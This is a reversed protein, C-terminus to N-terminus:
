FFNGPLCDCFYEQENKPYCIGNNLCNSYLCPNPVLQCHDGFYEKPCVCVYGNLVGYCTGGNQCPNLSCENIECTKGIFQKM